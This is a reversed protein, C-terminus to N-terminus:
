KGANPKVSVLAVATSVLVLGIVEGLTPLQRLMVMGILMSSAPYISMMLSFTSTPVYKMLAIETRYPIITSLLAIGVLATLLTWDQFVPAVGPLGVPMFLFTSTVMALTLSNSGTGMASAKRGLYVYVAWALGATIALILGKVVGPAQIDVGVWSIMMVGTFAIILAIRTRWGRSTVAALLVQGIFELAVATGLPIYSISYYFLVNMCGMAVGLVAGFILEQRPLTWVKPRFILLLMLAAMVIRGWAVMGTDLVEFLRVAIGAGVYQLLAMGIMIFPTWRAWNITRGGSIQTM